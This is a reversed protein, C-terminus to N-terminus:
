RLYELTGPAGAALAALERIAKMAEVGRPADSGLRESQWDLADDLKKFFQTPANTRQLFLVATLFGRAASLWFGEGRIVVAISSMKSQKSYRSAMERAEATPIQPGGDILVLHGVRAHDKLLELHSDHIAQMPQPGPAEGWVALVLNEWTAVCNHGQHLVVNLGAVIELRPRM